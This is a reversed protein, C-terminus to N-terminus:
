PRRNGHRDNVEPHSGHEGAPEGLPDMTLHEAIPRISVSFRPVALEITQYGAKRIELRLYDRPVKVEKFPTM